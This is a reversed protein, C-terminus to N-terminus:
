AVEGACFANIHHRVIARDDDIVVMAIVDFRMMMDTFTHDAVYACAIKEYRQRKEKTVAESPFGMREDSRTKVEVFVLVDGDRAIIDAEGAFCTWNRELIEYGRHVLYQAAANEGRRGLAKNRKGRSSRPEIDTDKKDRSRSAGKKTKVTGAVTESAKPARTRSTPKEIVASQGM